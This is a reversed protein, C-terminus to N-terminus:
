KKSITPYPYIRKLLHFRNFLDVHPLRIKQHGEVKDDQKGTQYKAGVAGGSHKTFNGKSVEEGGVEGLETDM